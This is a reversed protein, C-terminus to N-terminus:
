RPKPGEAPKVGGCDSKVFKFETENQMQYTQGHDVVTTNSRTTVKDDGVISEGTGTTKTGHSDCNLSYTMHGSGGRVNTPQCSGDKDSAPVGGKAMEATICMQITGASGGSTGMGGAGMPMGMGGQGMMAGMQARQQPSMKEMQTAMKANLGSMDAATDHGNVVNKVIRMEWLGPKMGSDALAANAATSLLIVSLIRKM